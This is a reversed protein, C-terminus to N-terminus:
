QRKLHEKRTMVEVDKTSNSGHCCFVKENGDDDSTSLYVDEHWIARLAMLVDAIYPEYINRGDHYHQLFMAGKGRYNPETLRIDPLGGNLHRRM